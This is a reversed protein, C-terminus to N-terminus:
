NSADSLFNAHRRVHGTSAVDQAYGTLILDLRKYMAATRHKVASQVKSAQKEIGPAHSEMTVSPEAVNGLNNQVSGPASNMRRRIWEPIGKGDMAEFTKYFSAKMRGGRDRLYRILNAYAGREIVIRNSLMAHQGTRKVMGVDRWKTTKEPRPFMRRQLTDVNTMELQLKSKEVGALYNTGPFLWFIDGNGQKSKPFPIAPFAMFVKGVDSKIQKSQTAQNKPPLRDAIDKSLLRATQKTLQAADGDQGTGILANQIGRTVTDLGTLDISQITLM